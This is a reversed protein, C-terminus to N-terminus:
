SITIPQLKNVGEDTDQRTTPLLGGEGDDLVSVHRKKHEKHHLFVTAIMVLGWLLLWSYRVVDTDGIIGNSNLYTYVALVAVAIFSAETWHNISWIDHCPQYRHIFITMLLSGIVTLVMRSLSSDDNFNSVTGIGMEAARLWMLYAPTWRIKHYHTKEELFQTGVITATPVLFILMGLSMGGIARHEPGWCTAQSWVTMTGDTCGLTDVLKLFVPLFCADTTVTTILESGIFRDFFDERVFPFWSKWAKSELTLICFFAWSNVIYWLMILVFAPVFTIQFFNEDFKLRLVQLFSQVEVPITLSPTESFTVSAALIMFKYLIALVSGVTTMSRDLKMKPHKVLMLSTDNVSGWMTYIVFVVLAMGLWFLAWNQGDVVQAAFVGLAAFVLTSGALYQPHSFIVQPSKTLAASLDSKMMSAVLIIPTFIGGFLLVFAFLVYRPFWFGFSDRPLAMALLQRNRTAASVGPLIGNVDRVLGLDPAKALIMNTMECAVAEDCKSYAIYHLATWGANDVFFIPHEADRDEELASKLWEVHGRYCALHIPTRLFEDKEQEMDQPLKGGGNWAMSHHTLTVDPESLRAELVMKMTKKTRMITAGCEEVLYQAVDRHGHITALDLPTLFEYTEANVDAGAKHLAKVTELHGERAALHLAKIEENHEASGDNEGPLTDNPDIGDKLAQLVMDLNGNKAGFRLINVHSKRQSRQVGSLRHPLTKRRPAPPALYRGIDIGVQAAAKLGSKTSARARKEAPIGQTTEPAISNSSPYKRASKFFGSGKKNPLPARSSLEERRVQEEEHKCDAINQLGKQELDVNGALHAINVCKEYNEIAKQPSGLGKYDKGINGYATCEGTTDGLATAVELRKLHNELAGQYKQLNFLANGINNYAVGEAHLDGLKVAVELAKQHFDLAANFHGLGEQANGINSYTKGVHAEDGLESALKLAKMHYDLADNFSNMSLYSNGIGTCAKLEGMADGIQVSSVNAKRFFEVANEHNGLSEHAFGIDAYAEAEREIDGNQQAIGLAQIHYALAEKYNGLNEHVSGLNGYAIGQGRVDEIEKSIELKRSHFDMAEKYKGLTEYVEGLNACATSEEKLDGLKKAVALHKLSYELALKSNGLRKYAMGILSLPTPQFELIHEAEAFSLVRLYVEIAATYEREHMKVGAEHLLDNVEEDTMQTEVIHGFHGSGAAEYEDLPALSNSLGATPSDM